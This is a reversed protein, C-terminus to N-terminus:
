WQMWICTSSGLSCSVIKDRVAKLESISGDWEAGVCALSNVYISKIGILIKSGILRWILWIM